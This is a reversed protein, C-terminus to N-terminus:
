VCAIRATPDTAVVAVGLGSMGGRAAGSGTAFKRCLYGCLIAGRFDPRCVAVEWGGCTFRWEGTYAHVQGDVECSRGQNRGTLPRAYFLADPGHRNVLEDEKREYLVWVDGDTERVIQPRRRWGVFGMYHERGLLGDYLHAVYGEAM